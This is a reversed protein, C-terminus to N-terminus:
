LLLQATRVHFDTCIRFYTLPLVGTTINGPNTPHHYSEVLEVASCSRLSKILYFFLILKGSTRFAPRFNSLKYILMTESLHDPDLFTRSIYTAM